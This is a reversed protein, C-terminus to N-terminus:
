AVWLRAYVRTYIYERHTYLTMLISLWNKSVLMDEYPIKLVFFSNKKRFFVLGVTASAIPKDEFIHALITAGCRQLPSIGGVNHVEM